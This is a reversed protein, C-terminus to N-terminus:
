KLQHVLFQRSNATRKHFFNMNSLGRGIWTSNMKFSPHKESIFLFIDTSSMWKHKDNKEVYQNEEIPRFYKLIIEYESDSYKYQHNNEDIQRQEESNWHIQNSRISKALSYVQAWFKEIPIKQFRDIDIPKLLSFVIYRRNGTPDVLFNVNNCTATYSCMRDFHEHNKGYAARDFIGKMSFFDRVEAADRKNTIKDIEDFNWLLLMSAAVAADKSKFDAPIRSSYYQTLDKPILGNIFTSKYWGQKSQITFCHENIFGPERVQSYLVRICWKEFYRRFDMENSVKVCSCVRGIWDTKKDWPEINNFYDQIPHYGPIVSSGLISLLSDKSANKYEKQKRIRIWLDNFARDSWLIYNKSSVPKHELVKSVENFRIEINEKIYSELKYVDGDYDIKDSEKQKKTTDINGLVILEVKRKGVSNAVAQNLEKFYKNEIHQKCTLASSGSVGLIIRSENMKVVDISKFFSDYYKAPITKQLEKRIPEIM